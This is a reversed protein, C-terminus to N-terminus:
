GSATASSGCGLTGALLWRAMGSNPLRRSGAKAPGVSARGVSRGRGALTGRVHRGLHQRTEDVHLAPVQLDQLEPVPQLAGDAQWLYLGGTGGLLLAGDPAQAFALIPLTRLGALGIRRFPGGDAPLYGLGGGTSVWLRHQRDLFLAVVRSDPLGDRPEITRWTKGDWHALGREESGVWLGGRGDPVLATIRQGKLPAADITQWAGGTAGAAAHAPSFVSLAAAAACALALILRPLVLRISRM